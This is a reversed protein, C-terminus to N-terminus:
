QVVETESFLQDFNALSVEAIYVDTIDPAQGCCDLFEEFAEKNVIAQQGAANQLLLRLADDICAEGEKAGLQLIELYRRDCRRPTVEKLLDYV